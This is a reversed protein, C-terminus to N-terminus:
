KGTVSRVANRYAKAWYPRSPVFTRVSYTRITSGGQTTSNYILKRVPWFSGRPRPVYGSM